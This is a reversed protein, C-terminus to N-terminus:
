PEGACAPISGPPPPLAAAAQPNGRVRPSLGELTAGIGEAMATGGCVRPYVEALKIRRPLQIPEGACAPISWQPTPSPTPTPPNGRVRPSLGVSVAEGRVSQRTGGCVRPYVWSWSKTAGTATPEGACAPISRDFGGDVVRFEPNGRVRPSLGNLAAARREELSTGGCVRPYVATPSTPCGTRAPEGACAPISRLAKHRGDGDRPNGRVRPSLGQLAMKCDCCFGTGGCVRPYVWILPPKGSATPPEGACAPISGTLPLLATALAHNGRVRPSLGCKRALPPSVSRTGGCVRPYVQAPDNVPALQPPEGACAPISWLSRTGM